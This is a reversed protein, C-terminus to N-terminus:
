QVLHHLVWKQKVFYIENHLNSRARFHRPINHDASDRSIFNLFVFKTLKQGLTLLLHFKDWHRKWRRFFYLKSHSVSPLKLSINSKNKSAESIKCRSNSRATGEEIKKTNPGGSSYYKRWLDVIRKRKKVFKKFRQYTNAAIKTHTKGHIKSLIKRVFWISSSDAYIEADNM